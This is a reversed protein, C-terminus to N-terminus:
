GQARYIGCFIAALILGCFPGLIVGLTVGIIGTGTLVGNVLGIIIGGLLGSLLGYLINQKRLLLKILWFSVIGGSFAGWFIGWLGWAFLPWKCIPYMGLEGTQSGVMTFFWSVLSSLTIGIIIVVRSALKKKDEM